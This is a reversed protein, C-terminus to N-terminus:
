NSYKQLKRLEKRDFIAQLNLSLLFHVIEAKFWNTGSARKLYEQFKHEVDIFFSSELIRQEIEDSEIDLHALLPDFSNFKYNTAQLDTGTHIALNTSPFITSKKKLYFFAYWRIAWSRGDRSIEKALKHSFPYSARRNFMSWRSLKTLPLLDSSTLSRYQKWENRWTGWALNHGYYKLECLSYEPTRLNGPVYHGSICGITRSGQYRVLLSQMFKLFNPAVILDEELFIASEYKEFIFDGKDELLKRIGLNKTECHVTLSPILVQFKKSVEIVKNVNTVDDEFSPGDIFIFFDLGEKAQNAVLSGLLTSLHAYRKYAFIVVAIKM